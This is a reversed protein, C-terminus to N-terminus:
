SNRASRSGREGREDNLMQEARDTLQEIFADLLQVDGEPLGKLLTATRDRAGAFLDEHAKLGKTTLAVLVERNDEPNV